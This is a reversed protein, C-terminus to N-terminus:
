FVDELLRVEKESLKTKNEELLKDDEETSKGQLLRERAAALQDTGQPGSSSPAPKAGSEIYSVVAKEIYPATYLGVKKGAEQAKIWTDHSITVLHKKGPRLVAKPM